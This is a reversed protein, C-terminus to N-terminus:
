GSRKRERRLKEEAADDYFRAILPRGPGWTKGQKILLKEVESVVSERVRITISRLTEAKHSTKKESKMESSM